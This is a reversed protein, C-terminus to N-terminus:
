LTVFQPVSAPATLHARILGYVDDVHKYHGHALVKNKCNVVRVNPSHQIIAAPDEPGDEGLAADWEALKYAAALVGDKKTHFVFTTATKQTASYHENDLEISENDVAAATTFLNRVRGAPLLDMAKFAVRGGLSHTMIDLSTAGALVDALHASVRPGIVSSMKKAKFWDLADNGAPWTYGVVVDYQGASVTSIKEEIIGYARAVDEWMNNYGHILMLVRKGRVQADFQAKTVPRPVPVPTQVPAEWFSDAPAIIEDETFSRRSNIIFM